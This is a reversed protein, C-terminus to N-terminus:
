IEGRKLIFNGSTYTNYVLPLIKGRKPKYTLYNHKYKKDKM